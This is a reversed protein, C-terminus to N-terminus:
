AASASTTGSRWLASKWSLSELFAPRGTRDGASASTAIVVLAANDAIRPAYVSNEPTSTVKVSPTSSIFFQDLLALVPVVQVGVEGQLIVVNKRAVKHGQRYLVPLKDNRAVGYRGLVHFVLHFRPSVM